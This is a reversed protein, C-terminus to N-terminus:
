KEQALVKHASLQTALYTEAEELSSFIRESIASHIGAATRLKGLQSLGVASNSVYADDCCGMEKGYKYTEVYYSEALPTAAKYEIANNLYAWNQRNFLPIFEKMGQCFQQAVADGISGRFYAVLITGKKQLSISGHRDKFYLELGQQTTM